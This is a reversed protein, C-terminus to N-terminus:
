HSIEVSIHYLTTKPTFWWATSSLISIRWSLALTHAPRSAFSCPLHSKFFKLILVIKAVNTLLIIEQISHDHPHCFLTIGMLILQWVYSCFQEMDQWFLNLPYHISFLVCVLWSSCDQVCYALNKPPAM